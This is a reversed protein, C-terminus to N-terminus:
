EYFIWIRLHERAKPERELPPFTRNKFEERGSPSYSRYQSVKPCQERERSHRGTKRRRRGEGGKQKM